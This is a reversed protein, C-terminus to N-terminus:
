TGLWKLVLVARARQRWRGKAQKERPTQEGCARKNVASVAWRKQAFPWVTLAERSELWVNEQM